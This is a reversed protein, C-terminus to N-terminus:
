IAEPEMLFSISENVQSKEVKGVSEFMHFESSPHKEQLRFLEDESLKRKYYFITPGHELDLKATDSCPDAEKGTGDHLNSLDIICWTKM